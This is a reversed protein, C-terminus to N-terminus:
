GCHRIPKAQRALLELPSVLVFRSVGGYRYPQLGPGVPSFHYTQRGLSSDLIRTTYYFNGVELVERLDEPSFRPDHTVRVIDGVSLM